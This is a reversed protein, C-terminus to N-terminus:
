IGWSEEQLVPPLGLGRVLRISHYDLPVPLWCLVSSNIADSIGNTPEIMENFM